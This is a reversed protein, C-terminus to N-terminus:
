ANSGPGDPGAYGPAPHTGDDHNVEVDILHVYWPRAKWPIFFRAAARPSALEHLSLVLLLLWARARTVM